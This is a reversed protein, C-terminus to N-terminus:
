LTYAVTFPEYLSSQPSFWNM